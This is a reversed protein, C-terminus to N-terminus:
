RSSIPFLFHGHNQSVDYVFDAPHQADYGIMHITDM